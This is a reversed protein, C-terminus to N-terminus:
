ANTKGLNCLMTITLCRGPHGRLAARALSHRRRNYRGAVPPAASSTGSDALSIYMLASGKKQLFLSPFSELNKWGGRGTVPLIDRRSGGRSCRAPFPRPYSELDHPLINRPFIKLSRKRPCFIVRYSYLLIPRGRLIRYRPVVHPKVRHLGLLGMPYCVLEREPGRDAAALDPPLGEQCRPV